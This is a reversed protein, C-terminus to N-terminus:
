KVSTKRRQRQVKHTPSGSHGGSSAAMSSSPQGFCQGLLKSAFGQRPMEQPEDKVNIRPLDHQEIPGHIEDEQKIRTGIQAEPIALEDIDVILFDDEYKLTAVAGQHFLKTPRTWPGELIDLEEEDAIEIVEDAAAHDEEEVHTADEAVGWTNHTM